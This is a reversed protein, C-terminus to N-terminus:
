AENYMNQLGNYADQVSTTPIKWVTTHEQLAQQLYRARGQLCGVRENCTDQM